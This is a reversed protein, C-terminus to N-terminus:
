STFIGPPALLHGGTAAVQIQEASLQGCGMGEQKGGSYRIKVPCDLRRLRTTFDKVEEWSPPRYGVGTENWPIVNLIYQMGDLQQELADIHAEDMNVDPIAVYQFTLWKRELDHQVSRMADLLEPLPHTRAIPMIQERTEQIASHLSLHLRWPKREAVFRRIQPTLGVTSVTIRRKSIMQGYEDAITDCAAMVADYNHLPEGQGMFVIDSIREGARREAGLISETIEGPTLNKMLGIRGTACFTCGLGCGAQSSVCLTRGKQNRLLVTEVIEGGRLRWLDKRTKDEAIREGAHELLPGFAFHAELAARVRPGMEPDEALEDFTRAGHRHIRVALRPAWFSPKRLGAEALAAPLAAIPIDRLHPRM